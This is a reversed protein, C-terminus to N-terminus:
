KIIFNVGNKVNNVTIDYDLIQLTKKVISLGLGFMGNLGKEYPTFINNLINEDIKDGDNFLTIKKNKITIKIESKTYRMFNNLLNDIITEWMDSTGRFISSNDIDIIFNIDPRILKFKDTSSKIISSVNTISRKNENKDKIYNLKNLYLLSHVKNELKDIQEKIIELSKENTEIGDETAEIYSKIVTIPTKFDHSINQYTQNKYNENNKLYVKMNDISENLSYIEDKVNHNLKVKYKDNDLNDIKKKLLIIKNVLNNSWIILILSCITFTIGTIILITHLINRRMGNIYNDNTLSIKIENSTIYNNYYYYLKNKYIFKGQKNQIYKLIDNSYNPIVNNINYSTLISDNIIYIYAIDTENNIDEKNIDESNNVLILPQKLKNYINQEYIPLLEKPLIIGLAICIILVILICIFILQNTLSIEKM